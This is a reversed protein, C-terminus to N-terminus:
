NFVKPVEINKNLTEELNKFEGEDYFTKGITNVMGVNASVSQGDELVLYEIFKQALKSKEEGIDKIIGIYQVLNTIGSLYEIKVGSIKGVAVRGSLKFLDRQNGLLITGKNYSVFDMYADYSTKSEYFDSLEGLIPTLTNKPDVYKNLGVVLSSTHNVGKKTEKDFGSINAIQSLNDSQTKGALILKEETSALIYGGMLYGVSLIANESKASELIETRVSDVSLMSLDELFPKIINGIGYGFSILDPFVGNLFNATMEEVTLNKVLLYLGKQSESFRVGVSELFAVKSQSGSEFTDVNWITLIGQFDSKNGTLNEELKSRYEKAVALTPVASIIAVIACLLLLKLIGFKKM